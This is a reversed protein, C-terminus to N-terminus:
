ELLESRFRMEATVQEILAAADYGVGASLRAYTLLRDGNRCAACRFLAQGRRGLDLITPAVTGAAILADQEDLFRPLNPPAVNHWEHAVAHELMARFTPPQSAAYPRLGFLTILAKNTFRARLGDDLLLVALDLEDLSESLRRLLARDACATGITTGDGASGCLPSLVAASGGHRAQNWPPVAPTTSPVAPWPM